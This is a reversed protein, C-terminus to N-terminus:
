ENRVFLWADLSGVCDSKPDSPVLARPCVLPMSPSIACVNQLDWTGTCFGSGM